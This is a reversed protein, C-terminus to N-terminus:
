ARKLWLVADDYFERDRCCDMPIKDAASLHAYSPVSSLLHSVAPVEPTCLSSYCGHRRGADLFFLALNTTDRSCELLVPTPLLNLALPLKTRNQKEVRCRSLSCLERGCGTAPVSHLLFQIFAPLLHKCSVTLMSLLHLGWRPNGRDESQQSSPSIGPLAQQIRTRTGKTSQRLTPLQSSSSILCQALFAKTHSAMAKHHPHVTSCGPSCLGHFSSSTACPGTLSKRLMEKIPTTLPPARASLATFALTTFWKVPLPSHKGPHPTRWCLSLSNSTTVLQEEEKSKRANKIHCAVCVAM